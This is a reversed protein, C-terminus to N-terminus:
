ASWWPRRASARSRRAPAGCAGAPPCLPGDLLGAPRRSRTSPRDRSTRRAGVQRDGRGRSAPLWQAGHRHRLRLRRQDRPRAELHGPGAAMQPRDRRRGGRRLHPAARGHRRAPRGAVEAGAPRLRLDLFREELGRRRPRVDLRGQDRRRLSRTSWGEGPPVVDGHANLAIVPGDGFRERVVLNVASVMGNARVLPEPVPHREVALGAAELLAAARLAHPACDGPPNDSPVKVLEALLEVAAAESRDLFDRVTQRDTQMQRRGGADAALRARQTPAPSCRDSSTSARGSPAPVASSTTPRRRRRRRGRIPCCPPWCRPRSAGSIPRRSASTAAGGRGARWLHRAGDRRHQSLGRPDAAQGLDARDAADALGRAGQAAPEPRAVPVPEQRDAHHHHQRRAAARRRAARRAGRALATWDFGGHECFLNDEAAVVAQRLAPAIQALPVWDKHLEEGEILRIVMLPTLPVPVFRFVLLLAAPLLLAVLLAWLLLRRIRRGLGSRRAPAAPRVGQRRPERAAHAHSPTCRLGRRRGGVRRASRSGAAAPRARSHGPSPAGPGRRHRTHALRWLAPRLGPHRVAHRHPRARVAPLSGPQRHADPRLRAGALSFLHAAARRQHADSAAAEHPFPPVSMAPCILVDYGAMFDLFRRYLATHMRGARAADELSM